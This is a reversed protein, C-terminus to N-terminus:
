AMAGMGRLCFASNGQFFAGRYSVELEFEWVASSNGNRRCDTHMVYLWIGVQGGLLMQYTIESQYLEVQTM